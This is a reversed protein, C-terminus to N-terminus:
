RPRLGLREEWAARLSQSRTRVLVGGFDFIVAKLSM